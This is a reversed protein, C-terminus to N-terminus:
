RIEKSNTFDGLFLRLIRRFEGLYGLSFQHFFFPFGTELVKKQAHKPDMAEVKPFGFKRRKEKKRYFQRVLYQSIKKWIYKCYFCGFRHVSRQLISEHLMPYHWAWIKIKRLYIVCSRKSESQPFRLKIIFQLIFVAFFLKM